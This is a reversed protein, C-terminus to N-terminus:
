VRMSENENAKEELDADLEELNLGMLEQVRRVNVNRPSVNEKACLAAATGAAEGLAMMPAMGASRAHEVKSFGRGAMLLNDVKTPILCRYPIAFKRDPEIFFQNGFQGTKLHVNNYGGFTITDAYWNGKQIDDLTLRYEGIVRRSERSGYMPSMKICYANEFGPVRERLFNLQIWNIRRCFMMTDTLAEGNLCDTFVESVGAMTQDFYVKGCRVLGYWVFRPARPYMPKEALTNPMYPTEPYPHDNLYQFWEEDLCDGLGPFRGEKTMQAYEDFAMKKGEMRWKGRKKGDVTLKADPSPGGGNVLRYKEQLLAEQEEPTKTPKSKLYEIFRDFDIGGIEMFMSVGHCRGTDDGVEYDAGARACVDLDASCDIVIKGRAAQPGSKNTFVVDSIREGEMIVDFVYTDLLVRVGAETLMQEIALICAEEDINERLSPEGYHEKAFATGGVDQLRRFFEMTVKNDIVRETSWDSTPTTGGYGKHLRYGHLSQVLGQTMNGGLACSRELLLTKAGNRAAALAAIVGATGGGVVVVDYEGYVPFTQTYSVKEVLLGNGGRTGGQFLRLQELPFEFETKM